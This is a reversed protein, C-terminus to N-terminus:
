KCAETLRTRQASTPWRRDFADLRAAATSSHSRCLAEIEIASADEALQGRGATETTYTDLTALAAAYHGRRLELM